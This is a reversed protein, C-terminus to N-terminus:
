ETEGCESLAPGLINRYTRRGEEIAALRAEAQASTDDEDPAFILVLFEENADAVARVAHCINAVREARERQDNHNDLAYFGVLALIAFVIAVITRRILSQLGRLTVQNEPSEPM